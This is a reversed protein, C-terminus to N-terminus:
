CGLAARLQQATLLWADATAAAIAKGRQARVQNMFDNLASCATAKNGAAIAKLAADLKALLAKRIDPSLPALTILGRLDTTGQQASKVTVIASYTQFDGDQDIVKGRVTRSGAASTACSATATSGAAGFGSGSGCDFAFTFTTAVPYGPVQANTLALGIPATAIVSAPATFTATPLVRERTATRLAPAQGDDNLGWCEVAGDTRLACTHTGGTSVQTFSGSAATKLAPASGNLDSGWCEIAADDRLACGHFVQTDFSRFFHGSAATIEPLAAPNDSFGTCHILGDTLLCTAEGSVIQLIGPFGVDVHDRNAGFWCDATRDSKLTCVERGSSVHVYSGGLPQLVRDDSLLIDWCEVDGDDRLACNNEVGTAVEVFTGTAATRVERTGPEASHGGIGFGWCEAAGDDRLGCSRGGRSSLQVFSGSGATVRAPAREDDNNGWCEVAGDSRLACTFDSGASVQTFSVEPGVILPQLPGPSPPAFAEPEDSCAPLLALAAVLLARTYMLAM